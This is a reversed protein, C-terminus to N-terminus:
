GGGLGLVARALRQVLPVVEEPSRAAGALTDFTEFSTLTHLIDAAEDLAESAPRGEQESLRAVIVRVGGRRWEDRARVGEFEADLVALSRLRRIVLRDSAWFHGFVAIFEALAHLPDPSAFIEPMREMGGRAALDDMIGELLGRKSGFQHYVTMRAVGAQRAVADMSFGGPDYRGGLPRGGRPPLLPAAMLLERATALIRARTQETAAQRQGLRYPRPM